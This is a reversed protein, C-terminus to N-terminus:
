AAPDHSKFVAEAAQLRVSPKPDFLQLSGMAADIASRIANNVRVPKVGFGADPVPAGTDANTNAGNDGKILVTGDPTYFLRNGQLATIIAAARPNDSVSLAEVAQRTSDYHGTAFGALADDAM